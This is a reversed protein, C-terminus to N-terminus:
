LMYDVLDPSPDCELRALPAPESSGATLCNNDKSGTANYNLSTHPDSIVGVKLAQANIAALAAALSIRTRFM